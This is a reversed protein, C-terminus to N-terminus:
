AVQLMIDVAELLEFSGELNEYDELRKLMFECLDMDMLDMVLSCYCSCTTYCFLPLINPHSLGVLLSNKKSINTKRDM